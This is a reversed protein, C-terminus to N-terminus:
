RGRTLHMSVHTSISCENTKLCGKNLSPWKCDNAIIIINFSYTFKFITLTRLKLSYTLKNPM